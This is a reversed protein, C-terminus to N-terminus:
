RYSKIIIKSNYFKVKDNYNLLIFHNTHYQVDHENPIDLM